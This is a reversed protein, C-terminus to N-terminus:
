LDLNTALGRPSSKGQCRIVSRASSLNDQEIRIVFEDDFKDIFEDVFENVFEDGFKDVFEDGLEPTLILSIRFM